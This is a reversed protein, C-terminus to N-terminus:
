VGEERRGCVALTAQRCREKFSPQRSALSPTYRGYGRGGGGGGGWVCVCVSLLQSVPPSASVFDVNRRLFLSM